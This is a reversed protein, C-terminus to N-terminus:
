TLLLMTCQHLLDNHSQIDSLELAPDCLQVFRLVSADDAANFMLTPDLGLETPSLHRSLGDFLVNMIGPIHQTDSLSANIHMSITTFVINARRALISNVRDAKAWALSSMNDGHLTYSFDKLQLKWALLLGFIVAVFEMTNQRKSENTVQFPLELASYALLTDNLVNYIGVGLGTLSADYKICFQAPQPRFSEMTRSLKAPNAILLLVFARWMMIDSQALVNLQIRVHPQDYGSTIAHLTVTYPRMHKSLISVRSILSALRQIHSISIKATTEFSFLAHVLKNMNRTCLTISRTDLNFEWGLFELIRGHQSKAVAISGKGLLHQVNNDVLASDNIYLNRLSVAMLDDVYWYCLGSIIHRCLAQLTRTLVQFAHPMGIWGFLGALHIVVIDDTLPFAFLQCFDPNYNLLNFAGKLDKKWLIINDWGHLDASTLVMKVLMDVTPHRIAGWQQEITDRLKDKNGASGNLPTFHEDHQGSLDGIIRGEPKGKTDAHHQPSLHIGPIQLAEHKKLFIMTGDQYLKYLLKNITHQLKIYRDRLPAVNVSEPRFNDAVPPTIGLEAFELLIKVDAPDVGPVKNGETGFLDIIRSVSLRNHALKSQKYRCMQSFNCHCDHFLVSDAAIAEEPIIFSTDWAMAHRITYYEDAARHADQLALLIANSTLGYDLQLANVFALAM